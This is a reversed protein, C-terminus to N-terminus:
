QKRDSGAPPRNKAKWDEWTQEDEVGLYYKKIADGVSLGEDKMMRNIRGADYATSAVGVYPLFKSVLKPMLKAAVPMHKAAKKVLKKGKGKAKQWVSKKKVDKGHEKVVQDGTEPDWTTSRRSPKEMQRKVWAADEGEVRVGGGEYVDQKMPSIGKHMPFGKMKFAM